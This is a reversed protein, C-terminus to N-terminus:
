VFNGKGGSVEVVESNLFVKILPNNKVKEILDNLYDQVDEREFTFYIHNLNGGLRDEKEILYTEFGQEALRLAASMGALGGGIVLGKQIVEMPQQTLPKLYRANAVAMRVLDKAKETAEEKHHMHVWSDQDRINAQEFLFRNLGAERITQQFLPEHTRPSCSAVVVRNLNHEKIKEKIKKQTDQSCTFLNDEAHVVYPLTKAYDRVEPVNVVSGINVGCHCVFVGIRPEEGSVDREPVLEEKKILSNREESILGSAYCAAGSAQAVTEPIDKPSQFAGCVYVGEKSTSVPADEHTLCFGHHNFEIGIKEALEKVGVSPGIGVSLVVMDFEEECRKNNEDIYTIILNKTEPDEIVRSVMSRIYRINHEEKAREYYQEYGKSFARIDMYFITPEVFDLHEKVIIAEKTAYMCCVSSCYNHDEDRSGVCQIFAIKKPIDGDSPRMVVSSFPGTASLMREFEISTVVNDYRGYGYEGKLTADFEEFGPAVIISGVKIKKEEEGQTYIIAKPECVEDCIGCGLCQRCSLCREAERRAQEESFGVAVESFDKIREEPPLYNMRVRPKYELNEPVRDVVYPEKKKRGVRLDEGKLFRDISIAAEKGQSVAQIATAPGTVVDGGAFVGPMTTELTLPDTKIIGRPTTEIKTGELFSLDTAQGIALIVMDTPITITTDEDFTPSFRGMEDFVSTCRMFEIGTVRGGESLIRKPGWRNHIKIGEEKCQVVELPHAPMEEDNELCVMEVEKAGLRLASRAVDAAVNGGGIVIVRKAVEVKKGLNVANLFEVGALVGEKDEGPINLRRSRHAGSAIFISKFGQKWLDEFPIDKGISTNCKIEVGLSKIADIEEKLINKPLRYEPIGVALMGGEVPLTEFITVPYGKLALDYACSLGAPGSGIIAVKEEKKEEIVPVYNFNEEKVKDAVFRKLFCISIPEEVKKGRLCADECPHTCIRGIVGPLALRDRIIQYAEKFRGEAIMGVYDRVNLGAPCNYSCPPDRRDIVHTSPVGQPYNIFIAKRKTLSQNYESNLELPCYQYCLDCGTCKEPDVRKPHIKLTVTFNGAEGEIAELEANTILEINPDRGVQVLKPSIICMACDNTPFTKDLQSMTGGINPSREVMYVKFGADALDLSAQMGGIGGGIVLVSGVKGM